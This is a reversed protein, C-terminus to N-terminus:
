DVEIEDPDQRRQVVLIRATKILIRCYTSIGNDSKDMQSSGQIRDTRDRFTSPAVDMSVELIDSRIASRSADASVLRLTLSRM